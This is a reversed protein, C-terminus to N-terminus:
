MCVCNAGSQAEAQPAAYVIPNLAAITGLTSKSLVPRYQVAIPTGRQIYQILAKCADMRVQKSGYGMMLTKEADILKLHLKAEHLQHFKAFEKFKVLQALTLMTNNEANKSEMAAQMKFHVVSDWGLSGFHNEDDALITLAPTHKLVVLLAFPSPSQIQLVDTITLTVLLKEYMLMIILYPIHQVITQILQELLDFHQNGCKIPDADEAIAECLKIFIKSLLLEHSTSIPLQEKSMSFMSIVNNAFASCDSLSTKRIWALLLYANQTVLENLFSKDKWVLDNQPIEAFLQAISISGRRLSGLLEESSLANLGPAKLTAVQNVSGVSHSRSGSTAKTELTESLALKRLYENGDCESIIREIANVPLTPITSAILAKVKSIWAYIATGDEANPDMERSQAMCIKYDKKSRLYAALSKGNHLVYMRQDTTFCYDQSNKFLSGLSLPLINPILKIGPYYYENPHKQHARLALEEHLNDSKALVTAHHLAFYGCEKNSFQVFLKSVTLKSEPYIQQILLALEHASNGGPSSSGDIIYCELNNNIIRVDAAIWHQLGDVGYVVCQLRTNDPYRKKDLALEKFFSSVAYRNELQNLVFCNFERNKKKAYQKYSYIAIAMQESTLLPNSDQKIFEFSLKTMINGSTM